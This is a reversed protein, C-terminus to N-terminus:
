TRAHGTNGCARFCAVFRGRERAIRIAGPRRERGIRIHLHRIGLAAARERGKAGAVELRDGAPAYRRSEDDEKGHEGGDGEAIGDRLLLPSDGARRRVDFQGGGDDGVFDVHAKAILGAGRRSGDQRVGQGAMRETAALAHEEAVLGPRDDRAEGVQARRAGDGIM